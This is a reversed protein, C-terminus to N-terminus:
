SQGIVLSERAAEVVAKTVQRLSNIELIREMQTLLRNLLRFNGGTMRIITAVTEPDWPQKPLSVGPPVWGQELLQRIQGAGLPRFEHVFGIRSYFQPYRALRKEIGPMGILVLGIGGHDFISRVQELGTMKLRDAEDIVLLATPDPSTSAVRMARNRQEYFANEANVAQVSRYGDPNRKPDHLKEARHLLRTMRADEYRRIREIAANHLLSRTKSIDHELRGPSSVVPSTYFVVTGKSVEKLLPKTKSQHKWYAQVKDWNAYNHASLTKGVGPSGYCLGIYRYRKCADCFEAFRRHELTEVLTSPPRDSTGTDNSLPRQGAKQSGQQQHSM